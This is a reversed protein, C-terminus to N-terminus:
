CVSIVVEFMGSEDEDNPAISLNKGEDDIKIWQEVSPKDVFVGDIRQAKLSTVKYEYSDAPSCTARGSGVTLLHSYESETLM